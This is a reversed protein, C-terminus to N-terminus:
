GEAIMHDRWGKKDEFWIELGAFKSWFVREVTLFDNRYGVALVDGVRPIFPLTAGKHLVEYEDDDEIVPVALTVPIAQEWPAPKKAARSM